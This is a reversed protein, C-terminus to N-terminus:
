CGRICRAFPPPLVSFHTLPCLYPAKGFTLLEIGKNAILGTPEEEAAAMDDDDRRSEPPSSSSSVTSYPANPRLHAVVPPVRTTTTTTTSLLRRSSSSYNRLPPFSVLRPSLSSSLVVVRQSSPIVGSKIARPLPLMRNLTPSAM